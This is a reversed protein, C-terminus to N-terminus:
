AHLSDMMDTVTIRVYYSDLEHRISALSDVSVGIGTSGCMVPPVEVGVRMPQFPGRFQRALGHLRRDNQLEDRSGLLGVSHHEAIEGALSKTQVTVGLIAREPREFIRPQDVNFSLQASGWDHGDEIAGASQSL